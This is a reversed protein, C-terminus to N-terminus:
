LNTFRPAQGARVRAEYEAQRRAMDKQQEAYQEARQRVIERQKEIEDKQEDTLMKYQEANQRYMISNTDPRAARTEADLRKLDVDEAKAYSVATLFAAIYIIIKKM